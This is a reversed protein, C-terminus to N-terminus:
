LGKRGFSPRAPQPSNPSNGPAELVRSDTAQQRALYRNLAADADFPASGAVVSTDVPRTPPWAQGFDRGRTLAMQQLKVALAPIDEMKLDTLNLTLLKKTNRGAFGGRSEIYLSHTKTVPIINFISQTLTKTSLGVYDDWSILRKTWQGRVMIGDPGAALAAADGFATKILGFAAAWLMLTILFGLSGALLIFFSFFILGVGYFWLRGKKYRALVM